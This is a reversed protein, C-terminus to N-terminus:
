SPAAALVYREFNSGPHVHGRVVLRDESDNMFQAGDFSAEFLEVM